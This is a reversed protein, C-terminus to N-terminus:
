NWASGSQLAGQDFGLPLILVASIKRADLDSLADERTKVIPRISTSGELTQLLSASLTSNAEDVIYLRIRNDSPAGTGGSLIFSFFIPLILFFLWEVPSIFRLLTDKIFIALLKRM